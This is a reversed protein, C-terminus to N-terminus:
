GAKRYITAKKRKKGVPKSASLCHKCCSRVLYFFRNAEFPSTSLHIALAVVFLATRHLNSQTVWAEFEAQCVSPAQPALKIFSQNLLNLNDVQQLETLPM